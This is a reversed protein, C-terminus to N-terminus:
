PTNVGVYGNGKRAEAVARLLNVFARAQDVMVTSGAPEIVYTAAIPLELGPTPVDVFRKRELERWVASLPLFSLGVGEDIFHKTIDVDTVTLTKPYIERINLEMLLEDWYGPHNGILLPHRRLLRQWDMETPQQEPSAVLLVPDRYLVSVTLGPDTHQIRSLGVHANGDIVMTAVDESDVIDLRFEVDPHQQTFRKIVGPLISRAILPSAAINLATSRGELWRTLASVSSDYRELISVADPLFRRGASTLRVGRGDRRFLECGLAAELKKIHATVTPQSIYLKEATRRFNLLKAAVTFTRLIDLDM